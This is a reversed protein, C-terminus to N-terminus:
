GGASEPPSPKVLLSDLGPRTSRSPPLASEGLRGMFVAKDAAEGLLQDFQDRCRQARSVVDQAHTFTRGERLYRAFILPTMEPQLCLGLRTATLWFRQVARGAGLNDELTAPPAPAVLAMHAACRLGPILELQIRPPLTGLFYRNLFRVREWSGMAWRMLKGTVPDTGVAGEPIRDDSFQREWDIIDRHVPYAEPMTLRVKANAFMLRAAQWRGEWGEFWRIRYGAPLCAELAHKEAQTLPRSSMARRQATRVPLYPALPDPTVADAAHLAVDFTPTREDADSRTTVQAKLGQASAAIDVSELLTGLALQSPRGDLDYVVTDRTDSGHIVFRKEDLLEFRWPQTNDGSPAWRAMDLVKEAPTRPTFPKAPASAPRNMGMLQRKGVAIALRQLPHNNGGPRWTKSLRNHYADFQLGWPAALVKGRKLLIKLVQSAAVGACLDCAMMTSPGKQAVVDIRAPDVLYGQQLRAPALGVFFRLYQEAEEQGEVRFYEEFSMKGPMFNLLATSLGLPAATTVPIGLRHCAAFVARRVPMVFFDLGDVYVDVGSLFDEVNDPSVGEPLTKIDLDPNIDLAMEVLTDLKPRGLSSIKAGVQRNFNEIDFTDFDSLTFHGIGLRTLTLLHAGGVGGLGAIAVRKAKLLHQESETIWGINRSFARQYDFDDTM